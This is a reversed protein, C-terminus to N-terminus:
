RRAFVINIQLRLEIFSLTEIVEGSWM